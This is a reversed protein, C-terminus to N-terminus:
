PILTANIGILVIKTTTGTNQSIYIYKPIVAFNDFGTFGEADFAMDTPPSGPQTNSGYIDVTGGTVEIHPNNGVGKLEYLTDLALTEPSDTM